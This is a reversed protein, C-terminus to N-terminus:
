PPSKSKLCKLIDFEGAGGGGGPPCFLSLHMVGHHFM